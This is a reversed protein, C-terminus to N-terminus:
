VIYKSDDINSCFYSGKEKYGVPDHIVPKWMTKLSLVSWSGPRWSCFSCLGLCPGWLCGPGHADIHDWTVTYPVWRLIVGSLFVAWLYCPGLSCCLGHFDSHGKTTVHTVSRLGQSLLVQSGSITRPLLMVQVDSHKTGWILYDELSLLHIDQNAHQGQGKNSFKKILCALTHTHTNTTTAVAAAATMTVVTVFVRDYIHTNWPIWLPFVLM